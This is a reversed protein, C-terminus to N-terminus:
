EVGGHDPRGARRELDLQPRPLHVLLRLEPNGCVPQVLMALARFTVVLPHDPDLREHIPLAVLLVSGFIHLREAGVEEVVLHVDERRLTRHLRQRGAGRRDVEGVRHVRVDAVLRDPGLDVAADDREM